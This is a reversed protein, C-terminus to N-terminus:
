INSLVPNDPEYKCTNDLIPEAPSLHVSTACTILPLLNVVSTEAKITLLVKETPENNVVVNSLLNITYPVIIPASELKFLKFTNFLKFIILPIVLKCFNFAVSTQKLLKFILLPKVLKNLVDAM